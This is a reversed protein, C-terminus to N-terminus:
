INNPKEATVFVYEILGRKFAQYVAIDILHGPYAAFWGRIKRLAQRTGPKKQEFYYGPIVEAGCERFFINTFGKSQLKAQYSGADDCNEKPIHWVKTTIKVVFKDFLSRPKRKIIYDALGIVGGPKLVRYAEEFFKERTDFHVPGEIGTLHTFSNNQFSLETATGHYATVHKKLKAQDIRRQTHEVHKWTVDVAHIRCQFTKNLLIDQSGTGCAVDLLISNKDLNILKGLHTVLNEAAAEYNTIGESWLGFNLYGGHYDAFKEVGTSYFKEVKSEHQNRNWSIQGM